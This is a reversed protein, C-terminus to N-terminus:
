RCRVVMRSQRLSLSIEIRRRARSSDNARILLFLIRVMIFSIILKKSKASASKLDYIAVLARTAASFCLGLLRQCISVTSVSSMLTTARERERM